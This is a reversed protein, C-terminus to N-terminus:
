RLLALFILLCEVPVLRRHDHGGDGEAHADVLRVDPEHDVGVEGPMDLGIVLFRAPRAPVSLRCMAQEIESSPVDRFYPIEDILYAVGLLAADGQLLQVLSHAERGVICAPSPLEEGKESLGIRGVVAAAAVDAGAVDCRHVDGVIGPDEHRGHRPGSLPKPDKMDDVDDHSRVRLAHLLETVVADFGEARAPVPVFTVPTEDHVFEKRLLKDPLVASAIGHELTRRRAGCYEGSVPLYGPDPAFLPNGDTPPSLGGPGSLEVPREELPQAREPLPDCFFIM